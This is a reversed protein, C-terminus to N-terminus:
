LVFGIRAQEQELSSACYKREFQVWRVYRSLSSTFWWQFPVCANCFGLQVIAWVIQQLRQENLTMSRTTLFVLIVCLAFAYVILAPVAVAGAILRSQIYTLDSRRIGVITVLDILLLGIFILFVIDTVLGLQFFFNFVCNSAFLLIDLVCAALLWRRSHLWSRSYASFPSSPHVSAM